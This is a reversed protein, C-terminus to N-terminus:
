LVSDSYRSRCHLHWTHHLVTRSTPALLGLQFLWSASSPSTPRLYQLNTICRKDDSENDILRHLLLLLRFFNKNIAAKQM